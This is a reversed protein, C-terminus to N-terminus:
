KSVEVDIDVKPMTPDNTILLIRPRQRFRFVSNSVSIKMKGTKGPKITRNALKVSIGPNYVQLADITLPETGTNTILIQDKLTSKAGFSGLSLHTQSFQAVPRHTASAAAPDVEPLLTVSLNLEKDQSIRDGPHLALYIASQTLGVNEVDKSNLTLVIQGVRDPYLTEPAYSALIYPPLHMLTPTINEATTNKIQLVQFPTEGRHVDNFEIDDTSIDIGSVHCPLTTYDAPALTKNVVNGSLSVYFPKDDRDTYVAISKNFHGLQEADYRAQIEGTKGPQIPDSTWTALTCGCDPEVDRITLPTTGNNTLTFIAHAPNHWLLTGLNHEVESLEIDTQATAALPLIIALGALIIRKM